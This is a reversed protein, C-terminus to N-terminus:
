EQILLKKIRPIPGGCKVEHCSICANVAANFNAKSQEQDEFIMRYATLFEQAQLNFFTDRDSDDTLLATHIKEFHNPYDGLPEGAIIQSKLRKNDVYMQEMLLAMESMEYMKFDKKEIDKNRSSSDSEVVRDQCSFLGTLLVLLLYKKM